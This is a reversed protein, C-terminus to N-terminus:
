QTKKFSQLPEYSTPSIRETAYITGSMYQPLSSQKTSKPQVIKPALVKEETLDFKMNHFKPSTAGFYQAEGIFSTDDREGKLNFAGLIRPRTHKENLTHAGPGPVVNRKNWRVIEDSLLTRPSKSLNSKPSGALNGEVKYFTDPMHKKM